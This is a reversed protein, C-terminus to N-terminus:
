WRWKLIKAFISGTGVDGFIGIDGVTRIDGFISFIAWQRNKKLNVFFFKPNCLVKKADHNM